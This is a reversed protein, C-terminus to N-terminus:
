AHAGRDNPDADTSSHPTYTPPVARAFNLTPLHFNFVAPLQADALRRRGRFLLKTQASGGRKPFHATLAAPKHQCDVTRENPTVSRLLDAAGGAGM